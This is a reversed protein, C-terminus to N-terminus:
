ENKLIIETLYPDTNINENNLVLEKFINYELEPNHIKVEKVLNNKLDINAFGDRYNNAYPTKFFTFGAVFLKKPKAELTSYIASFGTTPRASLMSQLRLFSSKPTQVLPLNVNLKSFYHNILQKDTSLHLPYVVFKIGKQKWLKGEFLGCMGKEQGEHLGHFLIDTKSGIDEKDIEQPVGSNIRIVIDYSDITKGLNMGVLSNAPGVICVNQNRIIDNFISEDKLNIMKHYQTKIKSLLIM